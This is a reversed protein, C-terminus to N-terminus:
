GMGKASRGMARDTEREVDRQAIARRKDAKHRGRGIAIEIKARGNKFYLSLPVLTLREQETRARIRDIEVRHLLLKRDRDPLHGDFAASHSYGAIRLGVLWAENGIIRAYADSLQVKSERLSKVESGQLVIGAEFTDLLEYDRRAQRNTAVVRNNEDTKPAM